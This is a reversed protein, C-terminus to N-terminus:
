AALQHRTAGIRTEPLSVGALGWADSSFLRPNQQTAM